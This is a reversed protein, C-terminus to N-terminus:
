LSAVSESLIEIMRQNTRDGRQPVVGDVAVSTCDLTEMNPNARDSM